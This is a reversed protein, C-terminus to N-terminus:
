QFNAVISAALPSCTLQTILPRLAAMSETMNDHKVGNASKGTTWSHSEVARSQLPERQLVFTESVAWSLSDPSFPSNTEAGSM